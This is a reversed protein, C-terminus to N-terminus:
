RAPASSDHRRRAQQRGRIVDVAGIAGVVLVFAVIGLLPIYPGM